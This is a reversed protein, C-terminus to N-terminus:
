LLTHTGETGALKPSTIDSNSSDSSISYGSHNSGSRVIDEHNSNVNGVVLPTLSDDLDTDNNTSVKNGTNSFFRNSRSRSYRHYNHERQRKDPLINLLTSEENMLLFNDNSDHRNLINKYENDGNNDMYAATGNSHVSHYSIDSINGDAYYHGLLKEELERYSFDIADDKVPPLGGLKGFIMLIALCFKSTDCLKSALATPSGTIMTLGVNGYASICEFAITEVRSEEARDVTFYEIGMILVFLIFLILFNSMTIEKFVRYMTQSMTSKPETYKTKIAREETMSVCVLWPFDQYYICIGYLLYTSYRLVKFDPFVKFGATRLMLTQVFGLFSVENDDAFARSDESGLNLILFGVFQLGDVVIILLIYIGLWKPTFLLTSVKRPHELIYRLSKKTKDWSLIISLINTIHYAMFILGWLVVPTLANGILVLLIVTNFTDETEEYYLSNKHEITLGTNTVASTAYLMSQDALSIGRDLLDKSLYENNLNVILLLAGIMIWLMVYAVYIIAMTGLADYTTEHERIMLSASRDRKWANNLLRSARDILKRYRVRKYLLVPVYTILPAGFFMLLALLTYTHASLESMPYSTLGTNTIASVVLFFADATSM